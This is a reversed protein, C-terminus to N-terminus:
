DYKGKGPTDESFNSGVKKLLFEGYVVDAYKADSEHAADKVEKLRNIAPLPRVVTSFNPEFFFPIRDSFRCTLFV